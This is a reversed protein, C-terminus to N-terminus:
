TLRVNDTKHSKICYLNNMTKGKLKIVLVM